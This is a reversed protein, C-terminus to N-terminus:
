SKCLKHITPTFQVHQSIPLICCKIPAVLPKIALVARHEDSQRVYYAHELLCYVIRGIGFAPEIVSPMVNRGTIKKQVKQLKVM